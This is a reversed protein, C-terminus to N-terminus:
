KEWLKLVRLRKLSRVVCFLPRLKRFHGMVRRLGIIWSVIIDRLEAFLVRPSDFALLEVLFLEFSALLM